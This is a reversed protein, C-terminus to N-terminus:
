PRGGMGGPGGMMGGGMGPGGMMQNPLTDVQQGNVIVTGGNIVGTGDYDFSSGASVNVTGGNIVINGNSDIGDTDGAGMVVTVTGDNIEVMPTYASSKRAANIGDDSANISIDGDNITIVTAELGETATIALTGGDITLTEDAHVGDDGSSLTLEGGTFRITGNSHLSDDSSDVTVTGGSVYLVTEAQIGDSGADITIEGSHLYVYGREADETNDSRIGDTGATLTLAAAAIKVCDKGCLAANRATVTVTGGTIVLDDKSVIGHKNNGNVTLRGGGNVTLDSRSFVAADLETDGDAATYGSGDSFTNDTGDALTLFVKDGSQVYLAPGDSNTVSVGCLVLQVKEEEGAAVTISGDSLAGSILYTGASTITVDSGSVTVGSGDASSGGDSLTVTATVQDYTPDLDRESFEYGSDDATIETATVSTHDAVTPTTSEVIPMASNDTEETNATATNGGGCATLLLSGTLLLAMLGTWKKKM